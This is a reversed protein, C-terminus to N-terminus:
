KEVVEIKQEGIAQQMLDSYYKEWASDWKEGYLDPHEERFKDKVSTKWAGITEYIKMTEFQSDWYEESTMGAAKLFEEYSEGNEFTASQEFIKKQEEVLASIEEDSKEFGGEVALHYATYKEVLLEEALKKAEDEGHGGVRYTEAARELEKEGVTFDRARLYLDGDEETRGQELEGLKRYAEESSLSEEPVPEGRLASWAFIGVAALVLVACVILAATRGRKNM